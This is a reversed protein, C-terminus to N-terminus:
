RKAHNIKRNHNSLTGVLKDAEIVFNVDGSLINNSSNNEIIGSKNLMEFLKKQQRTNLVMEGDNLRAWNKDGVGSTGKFIGGTSFKQSKAKAFASVLAATIAAVAAIALVPGIPGLSAVAKAGGAIAEMMKAIATKIVSGSEAENATTNAESAGAEALKAGASAVSAETNATTALTNAALAGTEANLGTVNQGSAAGQAALVGANTERAVTNGLTALTDEETLKTNKSIVNYLAGFTTAVNQLASVSSSVTEFVLFFRKVADGEEDLKDGLDAISDYARSISSAFDDINSKYKSFGDLFKEYGSAKLELSYELTMKRNKFEKNINDIIKQATGEDILGIDYNFQVEDFAKQMEQVFLRSDSLDRDINDIISEVAKLAAKWGNLETLVNGWEPNNPNMKKLKDTVESVKNSLYDISFDEYDVDEVLKAPETEKLMEQIEALHKKADALENKTKEFAANSPSMHNLMDTLETVRNQAEILSGNEITYTITNSGKSGGGGSSTNTRLIDSMDLESAIEGAVNQINGKIADVTAFCNAKIKKNEEEVGKANYVWSGDNAMNFMHRNRENIDGLYKDGIKKAESSYRETAKVEEQMLLEYLQTLRNQNAMAKARKKLAEVVSSSNNVFADEASKLDRVKLGLNQFETANKQIWQAKEHENRLKGWQIQLMSYKSLVDATTSALSEKYKETEERAIKMAESEVKAAKEVEKTRKTFIALTTVLTLVAAGLLIYPNASCVTNFLRQAITAKGTATALATKSKALGAAQARSIGMMLASNRQLATGVKIVANTATEMARLKAIVAILRETSKEGLVGMSVFAQLSSSVVDIGQKAADWNATDSALAAVSQQADMIADKYESARQTLESIKASVERGFDSNQMESNMSRYNITLDQIQKTIATLQSRYNSVSRASGEVGKMADLLEKASRTQKQGMDDLSKGAKDAEEKYRHVKEKAKDIEQNHQGSKLILENVLQGM